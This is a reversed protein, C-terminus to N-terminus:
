NEKEAETLIKYPSPVSYILSKLNDVLATLADLEEAYRGTEEYMYDYKTKLDEFFKLLKELQKLYRSYANDARFLLALLRAKEKESLVSFINDKNQNKPTKPNQAM